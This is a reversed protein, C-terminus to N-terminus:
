ASSPTHDELSYEPTSLSRAGDSNYLSDAEDPLKYEPNLSSAEYLESLDPIDILALKVAKDIEAGLYKYSIGSYKVIIYLSILIYSIQSM